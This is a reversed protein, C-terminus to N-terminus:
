VNPPAGDIPRGLVGPLKQWPFPGGPLRRDAGLADPRAYHVATRRTFDQHDLRQQSDMVEARATPCEDGGLHVFPSRLLALVEAPM